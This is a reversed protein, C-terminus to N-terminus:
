RKVLVVLRKLQLAPIFCICPQMARCLLFACCSSWQCSSTHAVASPHFPFCYSVNTLVSLCVFYFLHGKLDFDPVATTSWWDYWGCVSHDSPCTVEYKKRFEKSEYFKTMFTLAVNLLSFSFFWQCCFSSDFFLLIVVCCVVSFWVGGCLFCKLVVVM